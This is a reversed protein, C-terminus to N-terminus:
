IEEKIFKDHYKKDFGLDNAIALSKEYKEKQIRKNTKDQEIFYKKNKGWFVKSDVLAYYEDDTLSCIRHHEPRDPGGCWERKYLRFNGPTGGVEISTSM